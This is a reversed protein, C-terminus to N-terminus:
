IKPIVHMIPQGQIIYVDTGDPAKRELKVISVISQKARIKTEDELIYESWPEKIEKIEMIEGMVKVTSDNAFPDVVKVKDGM